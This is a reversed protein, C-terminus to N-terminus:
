QVTVHSACASVKLSDPDHGHAAFHLGMFRVLDEKNIIGDDDEDYASFVMAIVDDPQAKRVARLGREYQEADVSGTRGGSADLMRFATITDPCDLTRRVQEAGEM